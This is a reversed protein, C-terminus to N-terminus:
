PTVGPADTANMKSAISVVVLDSAHILVVTRGTAHQHRTTAAHTGHLGTYTIPQSAHPRDRHRFEHVEGYSGMYQWAEGSVYNEDGPSGTARALADWAARWEPDNHGITRMLHPQREGDGSIGVQDETELAQNADDRTPVLYSLATQLFFKERETLDRTM